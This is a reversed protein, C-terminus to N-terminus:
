DMGTLDLWRGQHWYRISSAKAADGEEIGDHDLPSPLEAPDGFADALDRIVKPTATAIYRTYHWEEPGAGQMWEIDPSAPEVLVDKVDGHWYVILASSGDRSCLVAWDKQTASRFHGSVVNTRTNPGAEQNQPVRCGRRELDQRINVPLAPFEAPDRMPIAAADPKGAAQSRASGAVLLLTLVIFISRM